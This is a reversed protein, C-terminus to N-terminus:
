RLPCWGMHPPEPVGCVPCREGPAPFAFHESRHEWLAAPEGRPPIAELDWVQVAFPQGPLAALVVDLSSIAAMGPARAWVVIAPTWPDRAINEVVWGSGEPLLRQFTETRFRPESPLRQWDDLEVAFRAVMVIM